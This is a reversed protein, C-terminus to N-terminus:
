VITHKWLVQEDSYSSPPLHVAFLTKSEEEEDDPADTFDSFFISYM